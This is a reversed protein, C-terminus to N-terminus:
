NVMCQEDDGVEPARRGDFNICNQVLRNYCLQGFTASLAFADVRWVDSGFKNYNGGLWDGRGAVRVLSKHESGYVSEWNNWITLSQHTPTPAHPKDLM